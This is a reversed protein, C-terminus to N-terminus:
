PLLRETVDRLRARADADYAQPHMRSERTRDFYRGTIRAAAPM